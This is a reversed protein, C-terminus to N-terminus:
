HASPTPPVLHSKLDLKRLREKFAPDTELLSAQRVIQQLTHSPRSAENWLAELEGLARERTPLPALELFAALYRLAEIELRAYVRLVPQYPDDRRVGQPAAGADAPVSASPRAFPAGARPTPLPVTASPLPAPGASASARPPSLSLGETGMYEMDRYRLKQAARGARRSLDAAARLVEPSQDLADTRARLSTLADAAEVCLRQEEPRTLLAVCSPPPPENQFRTRWDGLAAALRKGDAFRDSAIAAPGGQGPDARKKCGTVLALALTAAGM